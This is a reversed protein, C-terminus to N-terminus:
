DGELGLPGLWVEVTVPLKNLASVYGRGEDVAKGIFLGAVEAKIM